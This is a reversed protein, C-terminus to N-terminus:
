SGRLQSSVTAAPSSAAHKARWKGDGSRWKGSAQAEFSTALSTVGCVAAHLHKAIPARRPQVHGDSDPKPPRAKADAPQKTAPSSAAFKARWAGRGPQWKGSGEFELSMAVDSSHDSGDISGTEAYTEDAVTSVDDSPWLQEGTRM